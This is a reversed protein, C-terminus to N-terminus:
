RRPRTQGPDDEEDPPLQPPLHALWNRALIALDLVDVRCDGNIDGAIITECLPAGFYSKSAEATGGYAGMNIIGGNPFPEHGIPSNPDGADVCPSTVDDAVWSASDPDWRGAQSKLHYDGESAIVLLPEDSINHNSEFVGEIPAGGPYQLASDPGPEICSYQVTAKMCDVVSGCMVRALQTGHSASNGWLITDHVYVEGQGMGLTVGGGRGGARNDIITCNRITAGQDGDCYIGGGDGGAENGSLICSAILLSSHSAFVGGGAFVATNGSVTCSVIRPSADWCRIGAGDDAYGNIISVGELISNADEGSHFHFGRHPEAESGQCDIICTRPGDQSRVTIAKGKFDIDRNGDGTYIGPAILVLDGDNADDIAAQITPYEGPVQLAHSLTPDDFILWDQKNAKWWQLWGSPSCCESPRSSLTLQALAETLRERGEEVKRIVYPLAALGGKLMHNWLWRHRSSDGPSERVADDWQSYYIEFQEKAYLDGNQLWYQWLAAYIKAPDAPALAPFEAVTYTGDVDSRVLNFDLRLMYALCRHVSGGLWDEELAVDIICRTTSIARLRCLAYVCNLRRETHLSAVLPEVAQCDGLLGLAFAADDRINHDNKRPYTITYKDEMYDGNELTEVLPGFARTDGIAGLCLAAYCRAVHPGIGGYATLIEQDSWDPGNLLVDILFPVADPTDLEPMPHFDPGPQNWGSDPVYFQFPVVPKPGGLVLWRLRDNYLNPDPSGPRYTPPVITHALWHTALTKLDAYDVRHDRDLDGAIVEGCTPAPSCPRSISPLAFIVVVFLSQLAIRRM